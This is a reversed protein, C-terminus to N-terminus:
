SFGSNGKTGDSPIGKVHKIRKQHRQGSCVTHGDTGKRVRRSNRDTGKSDPVLNQAPWSTGTPFRAPRGTELSFVPKLQKVCMDHGDLPFFVRSVEPINLSTYWITLLNRVTYSPTSHKSSVALVWPQPSQKAKWPGTARKCIHQLVDYCTNNQRQSSNILSYKYLRHERNIQWVWFPM